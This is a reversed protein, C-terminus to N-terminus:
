SACPHHKRWSCMGIYMVVRLWYAFVDRYSKLFLRHLLVFTKKLSSGNNTAADPAQFKASKSAGRELVPMHTKQIAKAEDSDTWALLLRNLTEEASTNFDVNCCDLLFEAVNTLAPVPVGQSNFYPVVADTPGSYVTKGGSLLVLHSFLGFTASSPQHISAIVVINESKAIGRIRSM